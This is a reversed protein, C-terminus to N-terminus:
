KVYWQWSFGPNKATLVSKSQLYDDLGEQGFERGFGSAKYGGFPMSPPVANNCNIWVSGSRLARSLRRARDKDRTLASNALGFNTDNTLLIAEQETSFRRVSLFPGFIEETWLPSAVPVNDVIIPDVYYGSLQSSQEQERGVLINCQSSDRKEWKKAYELFRLVQDKQANSVMPGMNNKEELPDGVKIKKTEEVLRNLIKDAVTDHLLLRSTASCVQGQCMFIGVMIWDVASELDADDFVIIAGKGGM